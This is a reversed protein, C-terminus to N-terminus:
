DKTTYYIYWNWRCLISFHIGLSSKPNIYTKIRWRNYSIKFGQYSISIKVVWKTSQWKLSLPKGGNPSFFNIGFYRHSIVQFTDIIDWRSGRVFWHLSCTWLIMWKCFRAFRNSSANMSVFFTVFDCTRVAFVGVCISTRAPYNIISDLICRFRPLSTLEFLIVGRFLLACPFIPM